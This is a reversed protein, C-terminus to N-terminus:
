MQNCHIRIRIRRVRIFATGSGGFHTLFWIRMTCMPIRCLFTDAAVVCCILNRQKM